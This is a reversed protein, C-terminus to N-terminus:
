NIFIKKVMNNNIEQRSVSAIFSFFICNSGLLYLAVNQCKQSAEGAPEGERGGGRERPQLGLNHFHQLSVFYADHFLVSEIEYILSDKSNGLLNM